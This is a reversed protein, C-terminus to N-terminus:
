RGEMLGVRLFERAARYLSVWIVPCGQRRAQVGDRVWNGFSRGFLGYLQDVHSEDKDDGTEDAFM